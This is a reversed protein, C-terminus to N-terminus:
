GTQFWGLLASLTAVSAATTVLVTAGSRDSEVQYRQALLFANAGTPLAAVLVTVATEFPPVDLLVCAAWVVAPM